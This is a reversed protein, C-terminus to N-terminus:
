ASTMQPQVKTIDQSIHLTSSSSFFTSAYMELVVFIFLRQMPFVSFNYRCM